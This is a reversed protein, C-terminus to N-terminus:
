KEAGDKMEALLRPIYSLMMGFAVTIGAAEVEGALILTVEAILTAVAIAIGIVAFKM